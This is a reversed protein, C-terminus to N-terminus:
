LFVYKEHLIIKNFIGDLVCQPPSAHQDLVEMQSM